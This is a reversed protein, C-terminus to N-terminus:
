NKACYCYQVFILNCNATWKNKQITYTKCGLSEFNYYQTQTYIIIVKVVQIIVSAVSPGGIRKYVSCSTEIELGPVVNIDSM